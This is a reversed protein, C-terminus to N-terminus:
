DPLRVGSPPERPYVRLAGTVEVHLTLSEGAQTDVDVRVEDPATEGVPWGWEGADELAIATSIRADSEIVLLM